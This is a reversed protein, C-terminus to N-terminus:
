SEKELQCFQWYGLACLRGVTLLQDATFVKAAAASNAILANAALEVFVIEVRAGTFSRFACISYTAL